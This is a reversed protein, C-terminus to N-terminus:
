HAKEGIYNGAPYYNCVWIQHGKKCIAMGCGVLKTNYWVMQTYHGYKSVKSSKIKGGRYYKKESAWDDVVAEPTAAATTWFLNEGHESKSHKMKCSRKALKNAWKQAESALEESWKLDETGVMSRWKNHADVIQTQEIASLESRISITDASIFALFLIIMLYRYM